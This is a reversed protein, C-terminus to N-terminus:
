KPDKSSLATNVIEKARSKWLRENEARLDRLEAEMTGRLEAYAKRSEDREAEAKEARIREQKKAERMADYSQGLRDIETLIRENEAKVRAYDQLISRIAECHPLDIYAFYGLWGKGRRHDEIFETIWAICDEVGVETKDPTM